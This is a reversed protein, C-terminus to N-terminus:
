SDPIWPDWDVEPFIARLAKSIQNSYFTRLLYGGGYLEADESTVKMWDSPTSIKLRDGLWCLFKCHNEVDQWFDKPCNEFRWPYWEIEPYISRLAHFLSGEYYSAILSRGGLENIMTKNV